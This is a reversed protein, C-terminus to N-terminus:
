KCLYAWTSKPGADCTNGINSQKVKRKSGSLGSPIPPTTLPQCTFLPAWTPSVRVPQLSIFCIQSSCFTLGTPQTLLLFIHSPSTLSDTLMTGTHRYPGHPTQSLRLPTTSLGTLPIPRALALIPGSGTHNVPSFLSVINKTALKGRHSQENEHTTGSLLSPSVFLLCDTTGEQDEWFNGEQLFLRLLKM